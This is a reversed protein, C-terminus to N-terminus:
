QIKSTISDLHVVHHVPSLIRDLIGASEKSAVTPRQVGRLGETKANMRPSEVGHPIRADELLDAATKKAKGFQRGEPIGIKDRDSELDSVAHDAEDRRQREMFQRRLHWMLYVHRDLLTRFRGTERIRRDAEEPERAIRKGFSHLDVLHTTDREADVARFFCDGVAELVAVLDPEIDGQFSELCITSSFREVHVFEKM